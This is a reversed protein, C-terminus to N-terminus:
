TGQHANRVHEPNIPGGQCNVKFLVSGALGLKPKLIQGVYYDQYNILAYPTM